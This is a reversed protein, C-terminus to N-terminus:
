YHSAAEEAMQMFVIMKEGSKVAALLSSYHDQTTLLRLNRALPELATAALMRISPFAPEPRQNTVGLRGPGWANQRLNGHEPEQLSYATPQLSYATVEGSTM